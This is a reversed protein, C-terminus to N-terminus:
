TSLYSIEARIVDLFFDGFDPFVEDKSIATDLGPMFIKVPCEGDRMMSTDLCYYSGDGLDYLVVLSHPFHGDARSRLTLWVTDPIGSKLTDKRFVGYIEQSGFNGAGYEALFMRYTIPFKVGLTEAAFDLMDDPQSGVFDSIKPYQALLDVAQSYTALSM